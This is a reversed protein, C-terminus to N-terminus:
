NKKDKIYDGHILGLYIIDKLYNIVKKAVKIQRIQPDVNYNSLQRIAFSINIVFIDVQWNTM